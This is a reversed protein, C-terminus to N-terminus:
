KLLVMRHSETADSAEMRLLYSGSAVSRGSDDTGNWQIQHEGADRVEDVLTRVLRGKLDFVRVTVPGREALAFRVNTLPNFPNPVNARLVSRSVVPAVGPADFVVSGALDVKENAVTRADISEFRLGPDGDKKVRFRLQALPGEGALAQESAGMVAADIVGAQPSFVPAQRNQNALLEGASWDVYELVDHDWGLTVSLGQLSGDARMVLPVVIEDGVEVSRPSVLDLANVPAAPVPALKGVSNFNIAFLILDEFQIRNDTTPRADVSFDTTPGVDAVASYNLDGDFTGYAAGLASIDGTFVLNNGGGPM